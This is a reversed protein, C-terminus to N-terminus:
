GPLAILASILDYGLAVSGGYVMQTGKLGPESPLEGGVLTRYGRIPTPGHLIRSISKRSSRKASSRLIGRGRVGSFLALFGLLDRGEETTSRNPRDKNQMAAPSWSRRRRHKRERSTLLWGSASSEECPPTSTACGASRSRASGHNM